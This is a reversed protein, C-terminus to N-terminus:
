GKLSPRCEMILIKEKAHQGIVVDSTTKCLTMFGSHNISRDTCLYGHMTCWDIDLNMFPTCYIGCMVSVDLGTESYYNGRATAARFVGQERDAQRTLHFHLSSGQWTKFILVQCGQIQLLTRGVADRQPVSYVSTSHRYCQHLAKFAAILM